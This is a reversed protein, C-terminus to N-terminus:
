RGLTKDLQESIQILRESPTYNEIGLNERWRTAVEILNDVMVISGKNGFNGAASNDGDVLKQHDIGSVKVISMVDKLLLVMNGITMDSYMNEYAIKALSVYEEVSLDKVEEYIAMLAKYQRDNRKYDSDIRRVRCYALVEKGNLVQTGGVVGWAGYWDCMHAAEADTLTLTVGGVLDVIKPLSEFNVIFYNEIHIDFNNEFTQATLQAGGSNYASNLKNFGTGEVYVFTDRPISSLVVKQEEKNVSLVIMADSRGSKYSTGDIGLLLYHLWGEDKPIETNEIAPLTEQAISENVTPADPDVTEELGAEETTEEWTEGDETGQWPDPKTHNWVMVAAAILVVLIALLVTLVVVATNKKGKAGKKKGPREETSYERVPSDNQTKTKKTM